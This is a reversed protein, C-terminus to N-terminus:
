EKYFPNQELNRNAELEREAIPMYMADMTVAGLPATSNQMKVTVYSNLKGVSGERRALRVLDFWRKGEFLLERQRERLILNELAVKSAYNKIDLPTAPSLSNTNSRLYSTNVLELANSWNQDGGLQVLAEAKMLMVDSLRYIIWNATTSRYAYSSIYGNIDLGYRMGAYKFVGFLDGGGLFDIYSYGARIDHESEYTGDQLQYKFPSYNGVRNIREVYVLAPPFAYYGQSEGSKGYMDEVATNKLDNDRFQLEFISESSNGKYFIETYIIDQDTVLKLNKNSLVENCANVCNEYDQNWLYIDALLANLGSKTFRGKDYTTVGYSDRIFGNDKVYNLDEIIRGLVFEETSKPLSYDQSDDISADEIWPVEKFARVLYFYALARITLAEGRAYDLDRQTFNDDRELVEPAYYLLTNCYNIVTYFSGWLAYSNESTLNGYLIKNMDYVEKDSPFSRGRIINDSRLEGWVMMREICSRYTLSKYCAALVSEVDSKTQWFDDLVIDDEPRLDLWDNCSSGFFLLISMGIIIIQKKM